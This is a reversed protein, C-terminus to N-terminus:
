LFVKACIQFPIDHSLKLSILCRHEILNVKSMPITLHWLAYTRYCEKVLVSCPFNITQMKYFPTCANEFFLLFIWCTFTVSSIDSQNEYIPRWGFYSISSKMDHCAFRRLDDSRFIMKSQFWKRKRIVTLDIALPLCFYQISGTEIFQCM